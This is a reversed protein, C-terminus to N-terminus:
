FEKCAVELRTNCIVYEDRLSMELGTMLCTSHKFVNPRNWCTQSRIWKSTPSRTNHFLRQKIPTSDGCGVTERRNWEFNLTCISLMTFLILHRTIITCKTQTRHKVHVHNQTFTIMNYDILKDVACVVFSGGWISSRDLLANLKIWLICSTRLYVVRACLFYIYTKSCHRMVNSCTCPRWQIAHDCAVATSNCIDQASFPAIEILARILWYEIYSGPTIFSAFPHWELVGAYSILTLKADAAFVGTKRSM